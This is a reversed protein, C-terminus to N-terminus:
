YKWSKVVGRLLEGNQLPRNNRGRSWWPELEESVDQVQEASSVM